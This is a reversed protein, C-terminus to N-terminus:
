KNDRETCSLQDVQGFPLSQQKNRKELNESIKEYVSVQEKLNGHFLKEYQISPKNENYKECDYIHQMDEKKGCECKSESKSSFNAPINIMKNRVAFMERKQEVTLYNNFPQLYESMEICTYSIEKGKKGRKELLYKLASQFIKEKLIRLYKQKSM